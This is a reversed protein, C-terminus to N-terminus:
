QRFQVRGPRARARPQRQSGESQQALYGSHASADAHHTCTWKLRSWKSLQAAGRDVRRRAKRADDRDASHRLLRPHNAFQLSVPRSNLPTRRPSIRPSGIASVSSATSTKRMFLRTDFQRYAVVKDPPLAPNSSADSWILVQGWDGDVGSRRPRSFATPGTSLSSLASSCRFRSLSRVARRLASDNGDLAPLCRSLPAAGYAFRGSGRFKGFVPFFDYM